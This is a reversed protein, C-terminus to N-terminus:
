TNLNHPTQETRPRPLAKHPKPGPLPNAALEALWVAKQKLAFRLESSSPAAQQARPSANTERATLNLVLITMWAASLGAWAWPCQGWGTRLRGLLTGILGQWGRAQATQTTSFPAAKRGTALVAQETRRWIEPSEHGRCLGTKMWSELTQEEAFFRGCDACSELHRDIEVMTRADLESDLYPGQLARIEDCTM